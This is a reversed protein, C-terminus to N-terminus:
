RSLAACSQKRSPALGLRRELQDVADSWMADFVEAPHPHLTAPNKRLKLSLEEFAEKDMQARLLPWGYFRGYQVLLRETFSLGESLMPLIEFHRFPNEVGSLDFLSMGGVTAEIRTLPPAPITLYAWDQWRAQRKKDALDQIKDYVKIQGQGRAGLYMTEFARKKLVVQLKRKQGAIVQMERLPFRLDVAIDLETIMADDLYLEPGLVSFIRPLDPSAPHLKLWVDKTRKYIPDMSLFVSRGLVAASRYLSDGSPKVKQAHMGSRLLSPVVQQKLRIPDIADATFQVKDIFLSADAPPLGECPSVPSTASAALPLVAQMTVGAQMVATLVAADVGLVSYLRLLEADTPETHGEFIRYARSQGIGAAAALDCIAVGKLRSALGLM